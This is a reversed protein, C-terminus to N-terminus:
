KTQQIVANSASAGQVATDDVIWYQAVLDVGAPVGAPMTANVAHRGANDTVVLVSFGGPGAVDPVLVGGRLPAYITDLGLMLFALENPAAKYLNVDIATGTDLTGRGTMVPHGDVGALARSLNRFRDPTNPVLLFGRAFDAAPPGPQMVGIGAMEGRDNIEFPHLRHWQAAETPSLLDKLPTKVHSGVAEFDFIVWGIPDYLPNGGTPFVVRDLGVIDGHNNVHEATGDIHDPTLDGAYIRHTVGDATWLMAPRLNGNEVAWGAVDGHDNIGYGDSHHDLVPHNLNVVTDTASDYRLANIQSTLARASGAVVGDENLDWTKWIGLGGPFVVQKFGTVPDYFGGKGTFVAQGADNVDWIEGSWEEWSTGHFPNVMGGQETWLFPESQYGTTFWPHLGWGGVVGLNNVGKSGGGPAGGPLGGLDILQGDRYLAAITGVAPGSGDRTVAAVHGLENLGTANTSDVEGAPSLDGIDIITYSGTQASLTTILSGAVLATATRLWSTTPNRTSSM